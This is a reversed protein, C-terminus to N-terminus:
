SAKIKHDHSSARAVREGASLERGTARLSRFSESDHVCNSPSKVTHTHTHSHTNPQWLTGLCVDTEVVSQLERVTQRLMLDHPQSLGMRDQGTREEETIKRHSM